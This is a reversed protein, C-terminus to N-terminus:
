FYKHWASSWRLACHLITITCLFHHARTGDKEGFTDWSADCKQATVHISSLTMSFSPWTTWMSLCYLIYRVKEKNAIIWPEPFVVKALFIALAQFHSNTLPLDTDPHYISNHLSIHLCIHLSILKWGNPVKCTYLIMACSMTMTCHQSSRTLWDSNKAAAGDPNYNCHQYCIV